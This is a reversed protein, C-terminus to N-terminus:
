KKSLSKLIIYIKYFAYVLFSSLLSLAFMIIYTTYLHKTILYIILVTVLLIVTEVMLKKNKIKKCKEAQTQFFNILLYVYITPFLIQLVITNEYQMFILFICFLILERINLSNFLNKNIYDFYTKGDCKKSELVNIRYLMIEIFYLIWPIFTVLSIMIEM